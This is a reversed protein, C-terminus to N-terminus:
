CTNNSGEKALGQNINTSREEQSMIIDTPPDRHHPKNFGQLKLEKVMQLIEKDNTLKSWNPVFQAIRGALLTARLNGQLM